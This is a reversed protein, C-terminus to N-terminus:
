ILMNKMPPFRSIGSNVFEPFSLLQTVVEVSRIWPDSSAIWVSGCPQPLENSLSLNHEVQVAPTHRVSSAAGSPVGPEATPKAIQLTAQGYGAGLLVVPNRQAMPSAVLIVVVSALATANTCQRM